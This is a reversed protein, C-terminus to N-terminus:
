TSERQNNFYSRISQILDEITAREPQIVADLGAATVAERAVPGIVAIPISRLSPVLDDGLEEGFYRVASPSTFVIADIHEAGLHSRLDALGPSKETRYVTVVDVVAGRRRMEEPLLERATEARPILIRMDRMDGPFTELLSEARFKLPVRSPELDWSVLTRATGSGIVAIPINCRVGVGDVRRMFLDVANASTFILWDYTNINRAARDVESWDDVPVIAIAPCELVRAGAVELGTRLEQSLARTILITKGLLDM